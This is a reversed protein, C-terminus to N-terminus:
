ATITAPSSSWLKFSGSKEGAPTVGQRLLVTPSAGSLRRCERALHAQDAYGADAALAALPTAPRRAALVLFRQFRHVRLFTAPGYGVAREFRRRLQRESICAARAAQGPTLGKDMLRAAHRVLPDPKAGALREALGEVLAPLPAPAAAVRAELRRGAAGWLDAPAVDLNLLEGAPLGLAAGAAGVRLRVGCRDRGPTGAVLHVATAPGAVILRGATFVVDVCADPLVRAADGGSSWVCAVAADIGAPPALEVYPRRDVAGVAV